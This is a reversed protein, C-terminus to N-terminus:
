SVYYISKVIFCLLNIKSNLMLGLVGFGLGGFGCFGLGWFELVCYCLDGFGWFGM